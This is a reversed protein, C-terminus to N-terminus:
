HEHAPDAITGDRNFHTHGPAVRENVSPPATPSASGIAAYVVPLQFDPFLLAYTEDPAGDRHITVFTM